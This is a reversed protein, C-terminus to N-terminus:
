ICTNTTNPSSPSLRYFRPHAQSLDRALLEHHTSRM